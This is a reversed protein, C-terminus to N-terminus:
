LAHAKVTVVEDTRHTVTLHDRRGAFHVADPLDAVHVRQM